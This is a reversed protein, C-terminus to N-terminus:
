TNLYIAVAVASLIIMVVVAGVIAGVPAPNLNKPRRPPVPAPEEVPVSPPMADDTGIGPQDAADAKAASKDDERTAAQVPARHVALSVPANGAVPVPPTSASSAGPPAAAAPKPV